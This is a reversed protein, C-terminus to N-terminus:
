KYYRVYDIYYKAPFIRDDIGQQGGWVGGIALNLLLYHPKDFRWMGPNNKDRTYTHVRKGDIFFALAEPTWELAFVHFASAADPLTMRASFANPDASSRSGPTHVNTFFAKPDFGVYEMIDIEGCEPYGATSIDTGLTWIAPWTGNGAPVKARVEIRGYLFEMKGLTNVSASTYDFDRYKEKRAEIVLCGDEVRVNGSRSTYYQLEDNRIYGEEHGWKTSDPPGPRDFEDSWVLKLGPTYQASASLSFLAFLLIFLQKM